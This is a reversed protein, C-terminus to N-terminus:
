GAVINSRRGPELVRRPIIDVQDLDMGLDVRIAMKAIGERPAYQPKSRWGWVSGGTETRRVQYLFAGDSKRRVAVPGGV